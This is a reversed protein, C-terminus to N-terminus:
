TIGYTIIIAITRIADVYGLANEDSFAQAARFDGDPDSAMGVRIGLIPLGSPQVILEDKIARAVKEIAAGSVDQMYFLIQLKGSPTVIAPAIVKPADESPEIVMLPVTDPSVSEGISAAPYHINSTTMLGTFSPCLLLMAKLGDVEPPANLYSM